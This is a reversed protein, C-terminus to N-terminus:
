VHKAEARNLPCRACARYMRVRLANHGSFRSAKKRWEQCENKPLEGLSPCQIVERMLVGRIVEEALTPDADYRNRLLNSVMSASRSLRRAVASQSSAACAEALAAVWDPMDEGWAERATEIPGSM